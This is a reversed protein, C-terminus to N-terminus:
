VEAQGPPEDPGVARLGELLWAVSRKLVPHIVDPAIQALPELVFRREHLRPHPVVLGPEDIIREDYLLFDLDVPRPGWRAGSQVRGGAREIAQLAKLLAAPALSTEIEVVTNLYPGQPPGGVPETEIILAMQVVRLGSARALAAVARSIHQERNGENSGIGIFVRSMVSHVNRAIRVGDPDLLPSTAFRPKM